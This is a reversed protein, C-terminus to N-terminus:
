DEVEWPARQLAVRVAEARREATGALEDPAVILDLRVEGGRAGSGLMVVARTAGPGQVIRSVTARPPDGAVVSATSAGLSLWDRRVAAWWRHGPDSADPPGAVMTPMPRARWMTESGEVVVVVPQPVADPSWLVQVRPYRPVLPIGLGAAQFAADLQDGRPTAPLAALAAPMPCLRHEVTALRSLDALDEVSDFRSTTFAIRHV